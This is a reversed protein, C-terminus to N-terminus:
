TCLDALRCASERWVSFCTLVLLIATFLTDQNKM